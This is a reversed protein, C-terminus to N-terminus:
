RLRSYRAQLSDFRRSRWLGRAHLAYRAVLGLIKLGYVTSAAFSASSAEAFYRT